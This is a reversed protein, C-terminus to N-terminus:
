LNSQRQAKYVPEGKSEYFSDQNMDVISQYFSDKGVTSYVERTQTLSSYLPQNTIDNQPKLFELQEELTEPNEKPALINTFIDEVELIDGIRKDVQVWQNFLMLISDVSAKDLNNLQNKDKLKIFIDMLNNINDDSITEVDEVIIKKIKPNDRIEEREELLKKIEDMLEQGVVKKALEKIAKYHPSYDLFISNVFEAIVSNKSM